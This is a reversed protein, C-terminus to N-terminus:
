METLYHAGSWRIIKKNTTNLNILKLFTHSQKTAKLLLLCLGLFASDIVTVNQLDLIIHKRKIALDKFVPKLATITKETCPGKLKLAITDANEETNISPPNINNLLSQNIRCWIAYPFVHTVLMKTFQLGDFLYRRWLMPEQYIRWLWELGLRRTLVPARAVTGAFFNIAAGLHSIVPANLKQRNKEIWAQGKQAGLAVIVFDARHQNISDIVEPTGMDEVSGFGPAYHGVAKLGAPNQNIAKCALEGVGPAGGFFFVKVPIANKRRYLYDILDSGAVREPLPINLLKAVAVIPFGDAISLDSNVVSERFAPATQAACLFNLNPTSLFYPRKDNVASLIEAASQNLNVADFPLGLICWVNRSFDKEVDM